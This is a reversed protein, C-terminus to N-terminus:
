YIKQTDLLNLINTYNPIYCIPAKGARKCNHFSVKEILGMKYLVKIHRNFTSETFGSKDILVSKPMFDWGEFNHYNIILGLLIRQKVTLSKCVFLEMWKDFNFNEKM